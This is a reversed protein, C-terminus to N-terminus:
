QKNNAWIVNGDGDYVKRVISALVLEYGLITPDTPNITKKSQVYHTGDPLYYFVSAHALNEKTPTSQLVIHQPDLSQVQGALLEVAGAPVDLPSLYKFKLSSLAKQLFGMLSVFMLRTLSIDGEKRRLRFILPTAHNEEDLGSPVSYVRLLPEDSSIIPPVIM